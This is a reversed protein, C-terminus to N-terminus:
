LFQKYQEHSTLLKFHKLKKNEFEVLGVNSKCLLIQKKTQQLAKQEIELNRRKTFINFPSAAFYLMRELRDFSNLMTLPFENKLGSSTLQWIQTSDNTFRQKVSFCFSYHVDGSLVILQSPTDIRGFINLLKKAAGPHSMWNEADVM